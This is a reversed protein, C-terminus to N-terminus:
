GQGKRGNCSRCCVILPGNPDGGAGIAQVHDATLDASPHPARRWGPCWDGYTARHAKVAAARRQRERWDRTQGTPRERRRRENYARCEPCRSANRALTHGAPHLASGLCPRSGM